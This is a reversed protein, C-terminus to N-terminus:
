DTSPRPCAPIRTSSNVLTHGGHAQPEDVETEEGTFHLRCGIVQTTHSHSAQVPYTAKLMFPLLLALSPLPHAPVPRPPHPWSTPVPLLYLREPHPHLHTLTRPLFVPGLHAPSLRPYEPYRWPLWRQGSELTTRVPFWCGAKPEWPPLSFALMSVAGMRGWAPRTYMGAM